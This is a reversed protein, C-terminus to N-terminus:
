SMAVIPPLASPGSINSHEDSSDPSTAVTRMGRAWCYCCDDSTMYDMAVISPLLLSGSINSPGDSNNPSTPVARTGRAGCYCRSASTLHGTTMIPPLLVLRSIDSSRDSRHAYCGRTHWMGWLLLPRSIYYPWDNSHARDAVAHTGCAECYCHDESIM